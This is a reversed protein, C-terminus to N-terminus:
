SFQSLTRRKIAKGKMSCRIAMMVGRVKSLANSVIRFWTPAWILAGQVYRLRAITCAVLWTRSWKSERRRTSPQMSLWRMGSISNRRKSQKNTLLLHCSLSQILPSCTKRSISLITNKRHSLTSFAVLLWVTGRSRGRRRANIRRIMERALWLKSCNCLIVAKKWLSQWSEIGGRMEMTM